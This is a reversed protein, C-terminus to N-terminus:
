LVFSSATVAHVGALFISFDAVGDGNTDGLLNIGNDAAEYRLEGAVKSFGNTGIFSFADNVAATNANADILSLNIVDGDSLRFDTITDRSAALGADFDGPRFIFTDRGAGGTMVDAGAGGELVDDGAGGLMVDNGNGGVLTDNGNGGDLLDNGDQGFM